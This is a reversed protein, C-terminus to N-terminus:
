AVMLSRTGPNYNFSTKIRPVDYAYFFSEKWLGVNSPAGYLLHKGYFEPWVSFYVYGFDKKPSRKMQLFYGLTRTDLTGFGEEKYLIYLAIMSRYGNPNIQILALQYYKCVEALFPHLPSAVGVKVLAAFLVLRPIRGWNEAFNFRYCRQHSRPLVLRDGLNYEEALAALEGESLSTSIDKCALFHPLRPRASSSAEDQQSGSYIPGELEPQPIARYPEDSEEPVYDYNCYNIVRSVEELEASNAEPTAFEDLYEPIPDGEEWERDGSSSSSDGAEGYYAHGLSEDTSSSQPDADGIDSGVSNPRRRKKAREQALM